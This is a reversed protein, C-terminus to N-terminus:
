ASGEMSQLLHHSVDGALRVAMHRASFRWTGDVREFRDAYRGAVIPQLSLAPTQQFVTFYSRCTATSREDDVEIILNTTVHHTRPTDDEYRRTWQEYLQQVAAAGRIEAPM